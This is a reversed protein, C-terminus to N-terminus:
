VVSENLMKDILETRLINITEEPTYFYRILYEDDFAEIGVGYKIGKDIDSEYDKEYRIGHEGSINEGKYYRGKKFIIRSISNALAMNLISYDEKCLYIDKMYINELRENEKELKELKNMVM